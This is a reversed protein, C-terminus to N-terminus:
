AQNAVKERYESPPVDGVLCYMRKAATLGLDVAKRPLPYRYNRGDKRLWGDAALVRCVNRQDFGCCIHKEFTKDTLYYRTAQQRGDESGSVAFSWFENHNTLHIDDSGGHAPNVFYRSSHGYTQLFDRAHKRIQREERNGGGDREYWAQFCAAIGSYGAGPPLGTIGWEGVLELAAVVLTFRKAARASQSDLDPPLRTTFAQQLAGLRQRLGAEDHQLQQILQRIYARFVSGYCRKAAQELHSALSKGDLFGHLQEFLGYEQGADAPVSPLRVAQGANLTFGASRLYNELDYEGTFIAAVTWSLCSRNGGKATGQLKSQGNFIFYAVDKVTKPDAESVEDLFLLGDNQRCGRQRFGFCHGEM